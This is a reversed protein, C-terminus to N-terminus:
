GGPDLNGAPKSGQQLRRTETSHCSKCLLEVNTEDYKAGGESLPVKHHLENGSRILGRERCRECIWNRRAGVRTRFVEWQRNYIQRTRRKNPAGQKRTLGCEDCIREVVLGSCRPCVSPIM